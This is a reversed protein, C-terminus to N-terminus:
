ESLSGKLLQSKLTFSGQTVIREGVSLGRTVELQHDLIRGTEVVRAEFRDAGSRVFVTPKGDVQQVASEPIFIGEASGGANIEATAYMEPKLRGQANALEVRVPITRTAPDLQDGLKTVRGPFTRDPYAQIRVTVPMGLRVKGLDEENVAAIMWVTSLDSIVFLEDGPNAVSGPTVNRSLVVGDAPSKVPILDAMHDHNGGSKEDHDDISVQLFEVLHQRTRGLETEANELAVQANKFETEAHEVQELSAAKLEYLRHARDRQRQAYSLATKFRTLEQTAKRYEARAEHIDHSHLGALLQDKRVRDGPNVYVRAIRGDTISGVHWTGNENVSLRGNVEIHQAVGRRAVEEVVLNAQQRQSADLIVDKGAPKPEPRASQPAAAEPSKSCSGLAAALVVVVVAKM